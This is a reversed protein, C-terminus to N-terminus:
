LHLICVTYSVSTIITHFNAFEDLIARFLARKNKLRYPIIKNMGIYLGVRTLGQRERKGFPFIM